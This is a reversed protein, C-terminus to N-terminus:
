AAAEKLQVTCKHDPECSVCTFPREALERHGACIGIDTTVHEHVCGGEWTAEVPEGCAVRNIVVQCLGWERPIRALEQLPRTM